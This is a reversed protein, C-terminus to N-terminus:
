ETTEPGTSECIVQVSKLRTNEEGIEIAQWQSRTGAFYITELGLCDQFLNNEIKTVSAPIVVYKLNVDYYFLSDGLTTVGEEIIVSSLYQCNAMSQKGLVKCSGSPVTISTVHVNGHVANYCYEYGSTPLTVETETGVYNMLIGNLFVWGNQDAPLSDFWPNSYFAQCGISNVSEPITVFYLQDCDYFSFEGVHTIGEGIVVRNLSTDGYCLYDPVADLSGPLELKELKHCYYFVGMGLSELSDPLKVSKLNMREGSTGAFVFEGITKVSDPIVVNTLGQCQEFARDGISTVSSPIKIEKLSACAAFCQQPIETIGKPLHVSTAAGCNTFAYKGLSTVSNPLDIATLSSASAFAMMGVSELNRSFNVTRLSTCGAFALKGISKIGRMSVSEIETNDRFAEEAIATVDKGEYRGSIVVTRDDGEYGTIMYTDTEADLTFILGESNISNKIWYYVGYIGVVFLVLALFAAVGIIYKKERQVFASIKGGAGNKKGAKKKTKAMHFYGDKKQLSM